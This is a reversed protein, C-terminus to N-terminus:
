HCSQDLHTIFESVCQSIIPYMQRLKNPSFTPSVIARVGRWADGSMHVLSHKAISDDGSKSARSRDTFVHFDRVLIAQVLEPDAVMSKVLNKTGFLNRFPNHNLLYTLHTAMFSNQLLAM